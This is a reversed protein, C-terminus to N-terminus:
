RRNTIYFSYQLQILALFKNLKHHGGSYIFDLHTGCLVDLSHQLLIKYSSISYQSHSTLLIAPCIYIGLQLLAVSTTQMSTQFFLKHKDTSESLINSTQM